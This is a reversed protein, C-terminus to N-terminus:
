GNNIKLEEDNVKAMSKRKYQDFYTWPPSFLFLAFCFCFPQLYLVQQDIFQKMM